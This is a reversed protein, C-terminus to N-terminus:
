APKIEFHHGPDDPYPIFHSIRTEAQAATKFATQAADDGISNPGVDFVNLKEPDSIHRSVTTPGLEDIKAKMAAKIEDATKKEAKLAVYVDIVKDGASAYLKKQADVGQGEGTGELNNYMVRAQDTPTRATSTITASTLKAARLVDELIGKAHASVASEVANAGFTITVAAPAAPTETGAPTATEGGAAPTTTTPTTETGAPPDQRQVSVEGNSKQRQLFRQVARNGHASQLRQLVAAQVPANGRGRLSQSGALSTSYQSAVLADPSAQAELGTQEVDGRGHRARHQENNEAEHRGPM